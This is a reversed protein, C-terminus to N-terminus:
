PGRPDVYSGRETRVTVVEPGRKPAMSSASPARPGRKCRPKALRELEERRKALNAWLPHGESIRRTTTADM